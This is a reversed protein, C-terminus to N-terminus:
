QPDSAMRADGAGADGGYCGPDLGPGRTHALATVPGSSLLTISDATDFLVQQIQRPLDNDWVLGATATLPCDRVRARVM